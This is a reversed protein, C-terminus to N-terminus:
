GKIRKVRTLQWVAFVFFPLLLFTVAFEELTTPAPTAPGEPAPTLTDLGSFFDLLGHAIVIPYLRRTRLLLAGFLVGIITAVCVQNLEAALSGSVRILHLLGFTAAAVLCAIPIGGRRSRFSRVLESQLLGRTWSEEYFGISMAWIFLLVVDVTAVAAYDVEFLAGAMPVVLLVLAILLWPREPRAWRLGALDALGRRRILHVGAFWLPTNVAVDGLWRARSDTLGMRELVVALLDKAYVSAGIVLVVTLLVAIPRREESIENNM